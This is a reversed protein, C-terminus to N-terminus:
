SSDPAKTKAEGSPIMRRIGEFAESVGQLGFLFDPTKRPSTSTM